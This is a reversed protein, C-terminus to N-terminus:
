AEGAVYGVGNVIDEANERIKGSVSYFGIRVGYLTYSKHQVIFHFTGNFALWDITKDTEYVNEVKPACHKANKSNESGVM